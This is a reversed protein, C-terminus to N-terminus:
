GIQIGSYVAMQPGGASPFELFMNNDIIIKTNMNGLNVTSAATLIPSIIAYGGGPGVGNGVNVQNNFNGITLIAVSVTAAPQFYVTVGTGGLTSIVADGVAM